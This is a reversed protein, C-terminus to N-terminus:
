TRLPRSRSLSGEIESVPPMSPLSKSQMFPARSALPTSSRTATLEQLRQYRGKAQSVQAACYTPLNSSAAMMILGLVSLSVMVVFGEARGWMDLMKAVPIYTAASMASAVIDIVTLLSHAAFSSTAFPTLSSIISLRFGNALFM